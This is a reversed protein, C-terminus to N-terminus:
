EAVYGGEFVQGNKMRSLAAVFEGETGLIRAARSEAHSKLELAVFWVNEMELQSFGASSDGLETVQLSMVGAFMLDADGEILLDRAEDISFRNSEDCGALTENPGRINCARAIAGAVYNGVTQPFRIPSVFRASQKRVDNAFAIMGGVGASAYDLCLGIREVPFNARTVGAEEYALQLARAAIRSARDRAVEESVAPLARVLEDSIRAGRLVGSADAGHAAIAMSAATRVAEITGHAFPTVWGSGTVVVEPTQPILTASSGSM